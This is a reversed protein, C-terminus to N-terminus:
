KPCFTALSLVWAQGGYSFCVSTAQYPPSEAAVPPSGGTPCASFVPLPESFPASPPQSLTPLPLRPLQLTSAKLTLGQNHPTAKFLAEKLSWLALRQLANTPAWQRQESPTLMRHLTRHNLPREQAEVDVGLGQLPWPAPGEVFALVALPEGGKTTHSLSVHPQPWVGHIPEWGAAEYARLLTRGCHWARLAMPHSLTAAREQEPASLQNLACPHQTVWVQLPFGLPYGLAQSLAQNLQPSFAVLPAQPLPYWAYPAAASPM